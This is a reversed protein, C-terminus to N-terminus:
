EISNPLNVPMMRADVERRWDHLKSRLEKVKTPQTSSLDQQERIDERINFLQVTNKEFYELLKYDGDRIAGGPSQMGHNSYHPFHWYIPGREFSEGELAAVFSKGDITRHANMPLGAMELLTPYLDTSIVPEERTSGATGHGPWKIIM